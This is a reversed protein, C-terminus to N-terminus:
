DTKESLFNSIKFGLNSGAIPRLEFFTEPIELCM